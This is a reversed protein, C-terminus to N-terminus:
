KRSLPVIDLAITSPDFVSAGHVCKSDAMGVFKLKGINLLSCLFGRIGPAKQKRHLHEPLIGISMLASRHCYITSPLFCDCLINHGNGMM